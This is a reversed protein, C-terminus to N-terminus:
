TKEDKIMHFILTRSLHTTKPINIRLEIRPQKSKTTRNTKSLHDQYIFPLIIQGIVDQFM